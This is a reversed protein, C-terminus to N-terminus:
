LEGRGKLAEYIAASIEPIENIYDYHRGVKGKRRANMLPRVMAYGEVCVSVLDKEPVKTKLRQAVIAMVRQEIPFVFKYRAQPL